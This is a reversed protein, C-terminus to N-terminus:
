RRAEKEEKITQTFDEESTWLERGEAANIANQAMMIDHINMVIM